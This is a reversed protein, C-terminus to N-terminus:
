APLKITFLSGVGEESTVTIEGDHAEVLSKVIALGLGTGVAKHKHQAVRRFREFIYPLDEAPIGYGTDKVEVVAYNGNMGVQVTVCGNSPTYKIANSVLNLVVRQLKQSDADIFIPKDSFCCELIITKELAQTEITEIVNKVFQNLDFNERELLIPVGSQLQEIELINNVIELLSKGNRLIVQAIHTKDIEALTQRERLLDAYGLISTLPTRMDHTLVALFADKDKHLDALKKNADSLAQTRLQVLEELQDMQEQTRNVYLRFAYASLLIPLFFIAVGLYDFQRIALALLGGGVSTVTVNMPMAWRHEKWVDLPPVGNDIYLIGILLWINVQDGVIAATLWPLLQGALNDSGLLGQTGIFVLGAAFTSVSNMGVNFGLRQAAKKWGPRDNRAIILSLAAYGAGAVLAAAVPGFLPVTALSIATSVEFTVGGRAITSVAQTLVALSLLLLFIVPQDYSPILIVGWIVLVLGILIISGLYLDRLRPM